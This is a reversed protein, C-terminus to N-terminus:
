LSWDQTFINCDHDLYGAIPIAANHDDESFRYCEPECKDKSSRSHNKNNIRFHGVLM